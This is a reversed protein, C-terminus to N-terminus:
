VSRVSSRRDPDPRLHSLENPESVLNMYNELAESGILRRVYKETEKSLRLDAYIELLTLAHGLIQETYYISSQKSLQINSDQGLM